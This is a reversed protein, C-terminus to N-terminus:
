SICIEIKNEGYKEEEEEEEEEDLGGITKNLTMKDQIIYKVFIYFSELTFIWVNNILFVRGLFFFCENTAHENAHFYNKYNDETKSNTWLSICVNIKKILSPYFSILYHWNKSTIIWYLVVYQFDKKASSFIILKDDFSMDIQRYLKSSFFFRWYWLHARPTYINFYIIFLFIYNPSTFFVQNIIILITSKSKM